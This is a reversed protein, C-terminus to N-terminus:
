RGRRRIWIILSAAILLAPLGWKFFIGFFAWGKEGISLSTDPPVDHRMDIPVEGDSLWFFSSVIPTFNAAQVENRNMGLEGNSMWDADGSVIIKQEKGKIKRSLALVVPYSREVEGAAPNLKVSDDVFNTTELENWSGISDTRFLTTVNFGKSKANTDDLAATGPMTLVEERKRMDIMHFDFDAAEQTPRM